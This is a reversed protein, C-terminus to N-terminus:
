LGLILQPLFLSFSPIYTTVVLTPLWAFLLLIATPKAMESISANAMNGGFYLLPACPPTIGAMGINVALIAALQVPSVGIEKVIPVLIPACLLVASTDDM